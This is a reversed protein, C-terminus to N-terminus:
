VLGLTMKVLGEGLFVFSSSCSQSAQPANYYAWVMVDSLQTQRNYNVQLDKQKLYLWLYNQLYSIKM